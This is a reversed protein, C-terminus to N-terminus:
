DEVRYLQAIENRFKTPSFPKLCFHVRSDEESTKMARKVDPGGLVLFKLKKISAQEIVQLLSNFSSLEKDEILDWVILEPNMKKVSEILLGGQCIQMPDFGMDELILSVLECLRTEGGVVFVRKRHIASNKEIKEIAQM